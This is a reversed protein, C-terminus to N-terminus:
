LSSPFLGKLNLFGFISSTSLKQPGPSVDPFFLLAVVFVSVLEGLYFILINFDIM